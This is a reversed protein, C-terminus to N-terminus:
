ATDKAMLVAVDNATSLRITFRQDLAHEFTKAIDIFDGRYLFTSELTAIKQGCRYLSALLRVRRGAPTNVLDAIIMDSSVRDGVKLMTEGDVFLYKNHLHLIKFMANSVAMSSLAWMFNPMVLVGLFDMPAYPEYDSDHTFLRSRNGVSQCFARVHEKTIVFGNCSAYARLTDM